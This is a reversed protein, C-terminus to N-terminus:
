FSFPFCFPHTTVKLNSSAMRSDLSGRTSGPGAVSLTGTGSSTSPPSSSVTRIPQFDYSALIEEKTTPTDGNIHRTLSEEQPQPQSQSQPSMLDLIQKDMFQSTNM